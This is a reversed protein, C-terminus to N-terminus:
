YVIPKTSMGTKKSKKESHRACIKSILSRVLKQHDLKKPLKDAPIFTEFFAVISWRLTEPVPSKLGSIQFL